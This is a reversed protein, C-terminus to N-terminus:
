IRKRRDSSPLIDRYLGRVIEEPMKHSHSLTLTDAPLGHSLGVRVPLHIGLNPACCFTTQRFV